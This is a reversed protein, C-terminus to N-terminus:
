PLSSWQSPNTSFDQYEGSYNLMKLLTKECLATMKSWLEYDGPEFVYEGHAASNRKRVFDRILEEDVAEGFNDFLNVIRTKLNRQLFASFKQKLEVEGFDNVDTTELHPIINSNVWSLFSLYLIRRQARPLYSTKNDELVENAFNEIVYGMSTFPVPFSLQTSAVQIGDILKKITSIKENPFSVYTPFTQCLFSSMCYPYRTRILQRFPRISSYSIDRIVKYDEKGSYGIAIAWSPRDGYAISFIDTICDMILSGEQYTIKRNEKSITLCCSLVGEGKEILEDANRVAGNIGLLEIKYKDSGKALELCSYNRTQYGEELTSKDYGIIFNPIYFKIHDSGMTTGLTLTDVSFLFFDTKDVHKRQFMNLKTGTLPIQDDTLGTLEWPGSVIVERLPAPLQFKLISHDHAERQKVDWCFEFNGNFKTGDALLVEGTGSFQITSKLM